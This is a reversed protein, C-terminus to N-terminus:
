ATSTSASPATAHYPIFFSLTTGGRAGSDLEMRGGVSLVRQEIGVIGLRGDTAYTSLREPPRFGIGDDSVTVRLCDQEFRMLVRGISAHAHRHVNQIAEQIARFVTVEAMDPLEREDGEVSIDFQCRNQLNSANILWEVGSVLGFNDLISPRLNMSIRRLDDVTKLVEQRIWATGQQSVTIDDSSALSDSKNAIAMLTQITDDHIEQAIRHRETEQAQVLGAIYSQRENEREAYNRKESERWRRQLTVVAALLAPLLLLAVNIALTRPNWGILTPLVWILSLLWAVLGGPWSTTLSGYVIPILFLSGHIGYPLEFQTTLPQLVSLWSFHRWIGESFQWERWPWAQYVLLLIVSVVVTVWFSPNRLLPRRVRSATSTSRVMAHQM